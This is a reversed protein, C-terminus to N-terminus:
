NKIHISQLDNTRQDKKEKTLQSPQEDEKTLKSKRIRSIDKTDEFEELM